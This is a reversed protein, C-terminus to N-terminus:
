RDEMAEAHAEMAAESADAFAEEFQEETLGSAALFQELTGEHGIPNENEDFSCWIVRDFQVLIEPWDDPGSVEGYEEHWEVEIEALDLAGPIEGIHLTPM